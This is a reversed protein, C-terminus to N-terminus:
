CIIGGSGGYKGQIRELLASRVASVNEQIKAFSERMLGTTYDPELAMEHGRDGYLEYLVLDCVLDRDEDPLTDYSDGEEPHLAGYTYHVEVESQPMPDLVLTKGYVTWKGRFHRAWETENINSIIGLSPMTKKMGTRQVSDFPAYTAATLHGYPDWYVAYVVLCDDPLDYDTEEPETEFSEAVRLPNWRSYEGVGRAIYDEWVTGSLSERTYRRSLRARLDAVSIM